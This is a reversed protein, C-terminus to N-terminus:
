LLCQRRGRGRRVSGGRMIMALHRQAPTGRRRMRQRVLVSRKWGRRRGGRGQEEEYEPGYAGGEGGGLEGQEERSQHHANLQALLAQFSSNYLLSNRDTLLNDEGRYYM